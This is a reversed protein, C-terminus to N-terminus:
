KDQRGWGGEGEGEGEDCLILTDVGFDLGSERVGGGLSGYGM